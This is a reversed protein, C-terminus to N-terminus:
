VTCYVAIYQEVTIAETIAIITVGCYVARQVTYRLLRVTYYPTTNYLILIM